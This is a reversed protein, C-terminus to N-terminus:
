NVDGDGPITDDDILLPDREKQLKDMIDKINDAWPHKKILTETDLLGISKVINDILETENIIFSENYEHNIDKYDWQKGLTDNLYMTAFEYLKILALDFTTKMDKTKLDLWAFLFKLTIGSPSSGVVESNRMSVGRGFYHIDRELRDLHTDSPETPLEAAKPEAGGGEDTTIAKYVKLNKMFEKLDTGQYGKLVWILQQVDALTNSFDSSVYDYDDILAKYYRLDPTADANNLFPIFPVEGWSGAEVTGEIVNGKSDVKFDIWHPRPNNKEMPDLSFKGRAYEWYYTVNEDTWWEVKYRKEEKKNEDVFDVQYYRIVGVLREEYKTEYIPIIQEAPVIPWYFDGKTDRMVHVWELGKNSSSKSLKKLKVHKRDGLLEDLAGLHEEADEATYTLEDGLIKDVKQDVLNRHFPHSLKNNTKTKDEVEKVGDYYTIKRSQIKQKNFYYDVGEKMEKKEISMKDTDILHKLVRSDFAEADLKIRLNIIDQLNM